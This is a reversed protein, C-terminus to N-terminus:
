SLYNLWHETWDPEIRLLRKKKLNSKMIRRVDPDESYVWREMFPKGIEPQAAVVVSWCYSLAKNLAQCEVSRRNDENLLSHTITDLILLVQQSIDVDYLLGPECLGAAAARRELLNGESWRWMEKLLLNMDSRGLRQLAMAVAERMRWRPDSACVRLTELAELHGNELLKGQGLVGVFALFELPSNAPAKEADYSLLYDFWEANGEEAAAQALEINARPGPLRSERLLYDEWDNTQRLIERYSEVASM